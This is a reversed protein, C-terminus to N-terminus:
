RRRPGRDPPRGQHHYGPPRRLEGPNLTAADGVVLTIEAGGTLAAAKINTDARESLAADVEVSTVQGHPGALHAMISATWGSGTGVELVRNGPRVSLLEGFMVVVAPASVSSTFWGEGTAPDGAGDDVQTVISADSYVTKWWTQPDAVADISYGPVGDNDLTAWGAPPVFLHRPVAHLANRWRPDTLWGQDALLDALGDILACPDPSTSV